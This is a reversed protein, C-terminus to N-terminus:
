FFVFINEKKNAKKENTKESSKTQKHAVNSAKDRHRLFFVLTHSKEIVLLLLKINKMDCLEVFTNLHSAADENLSGSFNEKM